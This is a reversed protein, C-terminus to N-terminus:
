RSTGWVVLHSKNIPWSDISTPGATEGNFFSLFFISHILFSLLADFLPLWNPKTVGTEMHAGLDPYM